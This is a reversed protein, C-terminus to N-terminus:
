QSRHAERSTRCRAPRADGSHTGDEGDHARELRGPAAVGVIDVRRVRSAIRETVLIHLQDSHSLQHSGTSFSCVKALKNTNFMAKAKGEVAPCLALPLTSTKDIFPVNDCAHLLNRLLM